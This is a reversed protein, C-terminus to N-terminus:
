ELAFWTADDEFLVLGDKKARLVFVCRTGDAPTKIQLSRMAAFGLPVDVIEAGSSVLRGDPAEARIEWSVEVETGAFTDNFVILNRTVDADRALKSEVAPWDGAANSM